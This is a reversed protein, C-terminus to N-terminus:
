LMIAATGHVLTNAYLVCISLCPGDDSVLTAEGGVLDGVSYVAMRMSHLLYLMQSILLM